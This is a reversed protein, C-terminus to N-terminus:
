PSQESGDSGGGDTLDTLSPNRPEDGRHVEARVDHNGPESPVVLGEKGDQVLQTLYPVRQQEEPPKDPSM